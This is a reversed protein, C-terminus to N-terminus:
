DDHGLDTDLLSRCEELAQELDKVKWDLVRCAGSKNLRGKKTFMERENALFADVLDGYGKDRLKQIIEGMELDDTFNKKM